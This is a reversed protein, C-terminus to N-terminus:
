MAGKSVEEMVKKLKLLNAKNLEQLKEKERLENTLRDELGRM